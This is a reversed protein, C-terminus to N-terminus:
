LISNMTKVSTHLKNLAVVSLEDKGRNGRDGGFICFRQLYVMIDKTIRNRFNSVICKKYHVLVSYM